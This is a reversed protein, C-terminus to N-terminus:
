DIKGALPVRITYIPFSDKVKAQAKLLQCDEGKVVEEFAAEFDLDLKQAFLM